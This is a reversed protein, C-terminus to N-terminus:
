YDNFASRHAFANLSVCVHLHRQLDTWHVFVFACLVRSSLCIVRGWGGAERQPFSHTLDQSYLSFLNSSLTLIFSLSFTFPHTFAFHTRTPLPYSPLLAVEESSLYHIGNCVKELLDTSDKCIIWLLFVQLRIRWQVCVIFCAESLALLCVHFHTHSCIYIHIPKTWINSCTHTHAYISTHTPHTPTQM